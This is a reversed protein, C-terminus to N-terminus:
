NYKWSITGDSMETTFKLKSEIKKRQEETINLSYIYKKLKARENANLSSNNVGVLYLKQMPTLESNSVSNLFNKLKNRGTGTIAKGKATGDDERDNSFDSTKYDFYADVCALSNNDLLKLNDYVDDKDNIINKYILDKEKKSYNGQQLVQIRESDNLSSTEKGTEKRKQATAEVIRNKYDAYTMTNLGTINDEEKISQWNGESDKYYNTGDFNATTDTLELKEVKDITEKMKNNIQKQIEYTKQQKQKNTLSFDKQIDSKQKYLDGVEKSVKSLYKYTLKDTDTAYESNAYCNGLIDYFKSVYNSKLTSSTTFEDVFLNTEAYPTLMPMILDGVIGSYQDIVYDLLKPTALVKFFANGNDKDVLQKYKKEGVMNYLTEAIWKSLETTKDDYIELPLKNNYKTDSYISGGYWAENSKAQILGSFLNNTLPNNVGINNLVVDSLYNDWKEMDKQKVSDRMRVATGGLVASIRGKPIRIFNNETFPLNNVKILYYGDKIYDPLQEYDDDDDYVLHNVLSPLVGALTASIALKAYQNFGKAESVNRYVKSLGQISANLYPVGYKDVLKTLEGGRKFNTTVEASNYLAEDISGGRERTGIYEALRPATEVVKNIDEIRGITNKNITNFVKKPLKPNMDSLVGKNYDYFTNAEGGANVFEQYYKGNSIIEKYARGWDKIYNPFNETSNIPADNIDRAMNKGAYLINKGTTLEKFVKSSTSLTKGVISNGLAKDIKNFITDNNFADFIDKNIEFVKAKGNEFITATYKKLSEDYGVANKICDNAQEIDIIKGLDYLVKTDAKLSKYVERLAENKRFARAYSVAQASLSERASLIDENGGKARKLVQSGINDYETLGPTESIDRIVPVHDPYMERLHNYLENDIFTGVLYGKTTNDAFDSVQKGYEKLQPYKKDYEDVIKQSEKSSIEKGYLYKEYKSRSINDKNFVYDDLINQPIGVKQAKNYIDVISEGVVEGKSNIQRVGVSVNGENYSGLYRDYKWIGEKNGTAKFLNDVAVGKNTILKRIQTVKDKFNTKKKGLKNVIKSSTDPLKKSLEESDLEQIAEVQEDVTMTDGLSKNHADRIAELDEDVEVTQEVPQQNQQEVNEQQEAQNEAQQETDVSYQRQENVSDYIANVWEDSNFGVFKNGQRNLSEKSSPREDQWTRFAIEEIEQNSKNAIETGIQKAVNLWQEKTRRGQNNAPIIDMANKLASNDYDTKSNLYKQYKEKRGTSYTETTNLINDYVEKSNNNMENVFNKFDNLTTDNKDLNKIYDKLNNKEEKSIYKANEVINEYNKETIEQNEIVKQKNEEQQESTQNQAKKGEEQITQQEQNLIENNPTTTAQNEAQKLNMQEIDNIMKKTENDSLLNTERAELIYNKQEETLNINENIEKAIGKNLLSNEVDTEVQMLVKQSINKIEEKTLDRGLEQEKANLVKATRMDTNAIEASGSSLVTSIASTFYNEWMEDSDFKEKWNEGTGQGTGQELLGIGNHLAWTMIYGALEEMGEGNASMGINALAKGLGTKCASMVKAKATDTIENGGVGFLGFMGETFSEIAGEGGANLWAEWSKYNDKSFGEKLANGSGSILSFLPLNLKGVKLNGDFKGATGVNLAEGLEASALTYGIGELAGETTQGLASDQRVKKMVNNLVSENEAISKEWAKAGSTFNYKNEQGTAKGYLATGGAVLPTALGATLNAIGQGVSEVGKVVSLGTDLVTSGISGSVDGAKELLNKNNNQLSEPTKVIKQYWKKNKDIESIDKKLNEQKTIPQTNNRNQIQMQTALNTRQMGSTNVQRSQAVLNNIQSQMEPSLQKTQIPQSLIKNARSQVKNWTSMKQQNQENGYYKEQQEHLIEAYNNAEDVTDFKGLYEGTNYYHNIAEDDSVIKGNVVTPVLIEKKENDDYFSMSRVTSISGDSNKVVPRNNLDINGRGFNVNARNQVREWSSVQVTKLNERFPQEINVLEGKKWKKKYEEKLGM